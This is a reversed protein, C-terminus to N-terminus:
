QVKIGRLRLLMLVLPLKLLRDFYDLQDLPLQIVEVVTPPIACFLHVSAVFFLRNCILEFTHINNYIIVM